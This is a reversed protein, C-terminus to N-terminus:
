GAERPPSLRGAPPSTWVGGAALVPAQRIGGRFAPLNQASDTVIAVLGALNSQRM